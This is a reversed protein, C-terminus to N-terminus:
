IGGCEAPGKRSDGMANSTKLTTPLSRGPSVL